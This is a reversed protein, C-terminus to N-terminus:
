KIKMGRVRLDVGGTSVEIDQMPEGKGCIAPYFELNKGVADVKKFLDFTSIEIAPHYAIGAIDGKKIIYAEQGVYKQNIRKDDINWEMFTKIYVGEKIDEILEEFSYDGPMFFTNAMRIIPEKGYTARASANSKCGMEYATQRNHLFENVIGNKILIRKRAKTGEDDYKYFGYSNQITPDDAISICENAIKKGLLGPFAYSKGAQAAERGLIRDAEFPHGCSEHAILGTIYPSLVVDGESPPKEGKEILKKLFNIDYELWKETNWKRIFNWGGVNGFERHMQEIKENSVTILYYFSIRPIKSYIRSGDSNMYIKESFKDEYSFTRQEEKVVEDLDKIFSIKEEINPFNGKIEYKDVYTKEESLGIEKQFKAMKEAKEIGERIKEKNVIDSFYFGMGNKITRISFGYNEYLNAEKISGNVFLLENGVIREIRIEVYKAKSIKLAYEALDEDLM